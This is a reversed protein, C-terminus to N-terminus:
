NTSTYGYLRHHAIYAAVKPPLNDPLRGSALEERIESSSIPLAIGTLERIIAGPPPVYNHGPRTVVIFEVAAVVDQWRYWTRIDAFADSGIIFFVQRDPALVKEITLISYSKESGEELRSAEFRPDSECALEVMRLRDEYTAAQSALKHPPNAAPVFLM